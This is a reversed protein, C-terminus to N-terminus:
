KIDFWICTMDCELDYESEIRSLKGNMFSEFKKVAEKNEGDFSVTFKNKDRITIEVEVKLIKSLEKELM